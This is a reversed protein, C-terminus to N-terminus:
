VGLLGALNSYAVMERAPLALQSLVRQVSSAKMEESQWSHHSADTGVIFRKPHKEILAKWQPWLANGDRLITYDPSRPHVPWTRASLEYCLQPHRAILREALFLPTYGGHAWIAPVTPYADMLTSFERLRTVEIHVMVPLRHRRAIEFIGRMASGSPDYDTEGLGASPFHVASIEGIGKVIGNSDAIARELIELVAEDEKDWLSRYTAREPSISAFAVLLGPHARAAAAVSANDSKRGWFIVARRIKFREMLRLQMELDILHVHADFFPTFASSTTSTRHSVASSARSGASARPTPSAM